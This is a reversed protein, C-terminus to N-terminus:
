PKKGIRRAQIARFPRLYGEPDGLISRMEMRKCARLFEREQLPPIDALSAELATTPGFSASLDIGQVTRRLIPLTKLVAEEWTSLAATPVGAEVSQQRRHLYTRIATLQEQVPLDVFPPPLEFFDLMNIENLMHAARKPGCGRVGQVSDSTDGTLARYVTYLGPEVGKLEFFNDLTVLRDHALDWVDAGMRVTQLLDGDSSIVLPRHEPTALVRVCAAVGDDAERDRFAFCRVGLLGFLEFCQEIQHFAREKDEDSLLERRERRASKYGPIFKLRRAPVGHDFFAFVRDAQVDPMSLLSRLARLSGYIGGTFAGHSKLDDLATAMISRVILSNADLIFARHTM